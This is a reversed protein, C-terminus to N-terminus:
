RGVMWAPADKLFRPDFRDPFARKLASVGGAVMYPRISFDGQETEVLVDARNSRPHIVIIQDRPIRHGRIEIVEDDLAFMLPQRLYRFLPLYLRPFYLFAAWCVPYAIWKPTSRRGVQETTWDISGTTYLEYLNMIPIFAM